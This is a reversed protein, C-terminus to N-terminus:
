CKAAFELRLETKKNFLAVLCCPPVSFVLQTTYHASVQCSSCATTSTDACPVFLGDFSNLPQQLGSQKTNQTKPACANSSLSQQDKGSLNTLPAESASFTKTLEISELDDVTISTIDQTKKNAHMNLATTNRRSLAFNTIM